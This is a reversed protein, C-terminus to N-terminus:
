GCYVGCSLEIPDELTKGEEVKFLELNRPKEWDDYFRVHLYEENGIHVKVFFNEGSVLQHRYKIAKFVDFKKNLKEEVKGKIEAVLETIKDDDDTVHQEDFWAGTRGPSPTLEGQKKMLDGIPDELTKGEEIAGLDLKVPMWPQHVFSFHIYEMSGIQVKVLFRFGAVVQTRYKIAKFMNFKKGLREEVKDQIDAVLGIVEDGDKVPKEESICGPCDQRGSTEKPERSPPNSKEADVQVSVQIKGPRASGDGILWGSVLLIALKLNM